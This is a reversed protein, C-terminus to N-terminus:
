FSGEVAFGGLGVRVGLSPTGPRKGESPRTLFFITTGAAAGIGTVILGVTAVTGMTNIEQFKGTETSPCQQNACSAKLQSSTQLALGGAVGFMGLGIGGLGYALGVGIKANRAARQEAARDPVRELVVAIERQKRRELTVRQKAGVFGKTNVEIVHEGLSLRGEWDTQGVERGDIRLTAGKPTSEVRLSADMDEASLEVSQTEYLGLTVVKEGSEMQAGTDVPQEPTECALLADPGMFGRLRLRHEGIEVPITQPSLGLDKGDIEIHLHWNHKERIELKGERKPAVLKAVSPKGASVEVSVKIPAFGAKEARVEHVGALVRVTTQAHLEGVDRSDVFLRSDKIIDGEVTITGVKAVLATMEANVKLRLGTSAKPFEELVTEYWKLAEDYRGMANMASAMQAMAGATRQLALAKQLAEIAPAYEKKKFHDLGKERHGKAEAEVAKSVVVPEDAANSVGSLSTAIGTCLVFLLPKSIFTRM